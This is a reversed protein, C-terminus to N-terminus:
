HIIRIDSIPVSLTTALIGNQISTSGSAERVFDDGSMRGTFLKMLLPYYDKIEFFADKDIERVDIFDVGPEVRMDDRNVRDLIREFDNNMPFYVLPVEYRQNELSKQIYNVGNGSVKVQLGAITGSTSHAGSVLACEGKENIWIIDRQPDSPNYKQPYRDKTSHLGTGIAKFSNAIKQLTRNKRAISLWIRNLQTDDTCNRVIVAEAVKGLLQMASIKPNTRLIEAFVAKNEEFRISGTEEVLIPFLGGATNRWITTQRNPCHLQDGINANGDVIDINLKHNLNLITPQDKLHSSYKLDGITCSNKAFISLLVNQLISCCM